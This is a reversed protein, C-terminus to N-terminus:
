GIPIKPNKSNSVISQAIAVRKLVTLLLVPLSTFQYDFQYNSCKKLHNGIIIIQNKKLDFKKCEM